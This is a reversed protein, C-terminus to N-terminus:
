RAPAGLEAVRKAAKELDAQAQRQAQEREKREKAEGAEQCWRELTPQLEADPLEFWAAPVDFSFDDTSGRGTYSRVVLHEGKGAPLSSFEEISAGNWWWSREPHIPPRTKRGYRVAVADYRPFLLDVIAQRRQERRELSLRENEEAELRALEAAARGHLEAASPDRALHAVVDRLLEIVDPM